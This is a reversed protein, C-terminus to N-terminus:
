LNDDSEQSVPSAVSWFKTSHTIAQARNQSRPRVSCGENSEHDHCEAGRGRGLTTQNRRALQCARLVNWNLTNRRAPLRGSKWNRSIKPNSAMSHCQTNAKASFHFLTVFSPTGFCLISSLLPKGSKKPRKRLNKTKLSFTKQSPTSQNLQQLAKANANSLVFIRQLLLFWAEVKTTLSVNATRYRSYM